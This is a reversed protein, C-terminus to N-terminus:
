TELYRKLKDPSCEEVPDRYDLGFSTASAKSVELPIVQASALLWLYVGVFRPGHHGIDPYGYHDLVWHAMEHCLILISRYGRRIYLYGRPADCVAAADSYFKGGPMAKIKPIPVGYAKSISRLINRFHGPDATSYKSTYFQDEWDYVENRQYDRRPSKPKPGRKGM